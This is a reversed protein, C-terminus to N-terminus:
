KKNKFPAHKRMEEMNRRSNEGYKLDDRYADLHLNIDRPIRKRRFWRRVGFLFIKCLKLLFYILVMLTATIALLVLQQNISLSRIWELFSEVPGVVIENIQATESLSNFWDIFKELIDAM